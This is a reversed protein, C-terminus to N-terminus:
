GKIVQLSGLLRLGTGVRFEGGEVVDLVLNHLLHLLSGVPLPDEFSSGLPTGLPTRGLLGRPGCRRLAGVLVVAGGRRRRSRFLGLLGLQVRSGPSRTLMRTLLGPRDVRRRVRGPGLALHDDVLAHDVGLGGGCGGGVGVAVPVSSRHIIISKNYKRHNVSNNEHPCIFKKECYMVLDM